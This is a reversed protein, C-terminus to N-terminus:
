RRLDCGFHIHNYFDVKKHLSLYYDDKYITMKDREYSGVKIWEKLISQIFQQKQLFYVKNHKRTKNKPRKYINRISKTM